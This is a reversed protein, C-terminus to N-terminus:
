LHSCAAPAKGTEATLVSPPAIQFQANESASKIGNVHPMQFDGLADSAEEAQTLDVEHNCCLRGVFGGFPKRGQNMSKDHDTQGRRPM